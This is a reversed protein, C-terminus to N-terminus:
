TQQEEEEKTLAYAKLSSKVWARVSLLSAVPSVVLATGLARLFSEFFLLVLGFSLSALLGGFLLSFLIGFGIAIQKETDTLVEPNSNSPKTTM